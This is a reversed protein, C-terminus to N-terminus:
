EAQSAGAIIKAIFRFLLKKYKTQTSMNTAQKVLSSLEDREAHPYKEVFLPLADADNLLRDRWTETEHFRKKDEKSEQTLADLQVRVDEADIQRMLKGIYQLQRKKASRSHITKAHLLAQQLNEPFDFSLIQQENMEVLREGIDQAAHADRKRQSKSPGNYFDDDDEVDVSM